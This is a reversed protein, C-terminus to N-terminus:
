NNVFTPDGCGCTHRSFATLGLFSCRKCYRCFYENKPAPCGGYVTAKRTHTGFRDLIRCPEVDRDYVNPLPTVAGSPIPSVCMTTGIKRVPRTLVGHDVPAFCRQGCEDCQRQLCCSGRNVRVGTWGDGKRAGGSARHFCPIRQPLNCECVTNGDCVQHLLVMQLIGFQYVDPLYKPEERVGLDLGVM